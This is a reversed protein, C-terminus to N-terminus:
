LGRNVQIVNLAETRVACYVCEMDTIFVLGNINVSSTTKSGANRNEKTLIVGGHEMSLKM